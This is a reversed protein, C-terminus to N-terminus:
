FRSSSSKNSTCTQSANASSIKREQRCFTSHNHKYASVPSECTSGKINRSSTPYIISLALMHWISKQMKNTINILAFCNGAPCFKEDTQASTFIEIFCTEHMGNIVPGQQPNPHNSTLVNLIRWTPATNREVKLNTHSSVIRSFITCCPKVNPVFFCLFFVYIHLPM